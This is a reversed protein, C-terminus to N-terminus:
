YYYSYENETEIIGKKAKPKKEKKKVPAGEDGYSDYNEEDYYSEAVIGKLNKHRSM